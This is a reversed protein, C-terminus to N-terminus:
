PNTCVGNADFNYTKGNITKSTNAVMAGSSELYYWKGSLNLWGTKMVGSDNFFYWKGGIQRWKTAMQGSSEFYYWKGDVQKWGTVMVGSDNFFYWKDSIKQWGTVMAGSTNFYYWKDSIKQWGTVMAGSDAFYYWKGGIQKWGTVMAGGDTFYYWVGSIQKWGTVMAGGSTFYFYKGDIKQWGTRMVGSGNFSYWTNGIKKWGTTMAGTEDLYYWKGDIQKWGTVIQGNEYYYWKGDIKEWGTKTKLAELAAELAELKDLYESDLKEKQEDTLAEYAERAAAIAAEDDLTVNEPEPLADIMDQVEYVATDDDGYNEKTYDDTWHFCIVDGEMLPQQNVGNNSDQGNITYQWGSNPNNDKERLTVGNYTVSDIYETGLSMRYTFTIGNAEFAQLLLDWVTANSDVTFETEEVWTVLNGAALTHVVDEGEHLTDGLISLKVNITGEPAKIAVTFTGSIGMYTVTITKEGLTASDFGSIEVDQFEEDEPTIVKTTDDSYFVTIEMGAPDFEENLLYEAKYDGSIQIGTIWPGDPIEPKAVGSADAGLPDDTRNINRRLSSPKLRETDEWGTWLATYITELEEATYDTRSSDFYFVQDAMGEVDHWGLEVANTDVHYVRGFATLGDAPAYFNNEFITYIDLHSYLGALAGVNTTGSVTGSIVNSRFIATSAADYGQQLGGENGVLGGVNTTGNVAGSMTSGTIRILRTNPASGSLYGSGIFGGVNSVGNVTGGFVCNTFTSGAMSNASAGALGGVNGTGYVTAYSECDTLSGILGGVFSGISQQDHAYGIVVGEEVVCGALRIPNRTSGTVPFLGADRTSSGSKLTINELNVVGDISHGKNILGTGNIEEGFINLNRITVPGTKEFLPSSGKFYSVTHDGGDLNACFATGVGISTWGEPLELDADLKFWMGSFNFGDENVGKRLTELDTLDKILYPDEETGSGAFGYDLPTVHVLFFESTTSATKTPDERSTATAVLCVYWDGVPMNTTPTYEFTVYRVGGSSGSARSRFSGEVPAAGELSPESNYYFAIGPHDSNDYPFTGYEPINNYGTEQGASVRFYIPNLASGASYETLYEGQLRYTAYIGPQVLVSPANVYTLRTTVTILESDTTYTNGEVTNTVTCYYNATGAVNTAPVEYTAETADAVAKSAAYWQYSLTGREPEQVTVSLTIPEDKERTVEAATQDTIVPFDHSLTVKFTWQKEVTRGDATATVLRVPISATETEDLGFDSLKFAAASVNATYENEGIYLKTGDSQNFNAIVTIDDSRCIGTFVETTYLSSGYTSLAPTFPISNGLNDRIYFSTLSSLKTVKINYVDCSEFADQGNVYGDMNTDTKKGVILSLTGASGIALSGYASSSNGLYSVNAVGTAPVTLDDVTSYGLSTVKKGDFRYQVYFTDGSALADDSLEVMVQPGGFLDVAYETTEQAFTMLPLEVNSMVLSLKKVYGNSSSGAPAVQPNVTVKRFGTTVSYLNDEADKATIVCFYWKVGVESVDPNIYSNASLATAGETSEETNSYWQYQVGSLGTTDAFNYVNIAYVDDGVNYISEGGINNLLELPRSGDAYTVSVRITTKATQDGDTYTVTVTKVGPTESDFGTFIADATVDKANNEGGYTAIVVMGATDFEEGLAYITKYEGTVDLKVLISPDDVLYTIPANLLNQNNPGINIQEFQAATGHFKVSGVANTGTNFNGQEITELGAYFEFENLSVGTFAGNEITKVGSPIVISKLGSFYFFTSSKITVLSNPLIVKTVDTSYQRFFRGISTIGEEVVITKIKGAAFLTEWPLDPTFNEYARVDGTGSITLVYDDTVKWTVNEENGEAGCTGEAIVAPGAAEVTVTCVPAIIPCDMDWDEYNVTGAASVVYTGPEDFTLTVKGDEGAVAGEIATFAGDAWVGAQLGTPAAEGLGMMGDPVLSLTLTFAEGATVTRTRETYYAYYDTYFYENVDCMIAAVLYDGEAVTDTKVGNPIFAHNLIFLCNGGADVGWLTRVASSSTVYGDAGASCYATHAAVLAEDYTLVGDSDLDKVTVPKDALALVGANSITVHVQADPAPEGGEEAPLDVPIVAEAEAPTEDPLLDVTEAEPALEVVEAPEDAEAALEVAEAPEEALDVVSLSDAAETGAALATAPVMGLLMVLVLLLSLLKKKMM